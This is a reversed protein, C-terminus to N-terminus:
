QASLKRELAMNYEKAYSNFEHSLKGHEKSELADSTGMIYRSGYKCLLEKNSLGPYGIGFGGIAIFRYDKHKIRAEVDKRPSNLNIPLLYTKLLALQTTEPVTDPNMWCPIENSYASSSLLFFFIISLLRM